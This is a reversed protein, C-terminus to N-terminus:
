LPLHQETHVCWHPSSEWLDAIREGMKGGDGGACREWRKCHAEDIGLANGKGAKMRPHGCLWGWQQDGERLSTQALPMPVPASICARTLWSRQEKGARSPGVHSPGLNLCNATM